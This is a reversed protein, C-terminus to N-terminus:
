SLVFVGVSSFAWTSAGSVVRDGRYPSKHAHTARLSTAPPCPLGSRRARFM